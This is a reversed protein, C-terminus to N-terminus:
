IYSFQYITLGGSFGTLVVATFLPSLCPIMIMMWRYFQGSSSLIPIIYLNYSSIIAMGELLIIEGGFNPNRSWKWVGVDCLKKNIDKGKYNAKYHNLKQQDGVAALFMGIIWLFLGFYEINSMTFPENCFSGTINVSESVNGNNTYVILNFVTVPLSVIICWSCHLVWFTLLTQPKARMKDLRDDGGKDRICMRYLLFIGLRASWIILMATMMTQKINFCKSWLYSLITLTCFNTSGTFNDIRLFYSLSFNCCQIGISILIFLKYFDWLGNADSLSLQMM